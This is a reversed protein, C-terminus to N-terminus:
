KYRFTSGQGTNSLSNKAGSEFIPTNFHMIMVVSLFIIIAFGMILNLAITFEVYNYAKHSTGYHNSFVVGHSLYCYMANGIALLGLILLLLQGYTM